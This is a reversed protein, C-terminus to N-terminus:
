EKTPAQKQHFKGHFGGDRGKMKEAFKDQMQGAKERQEPTMIAFLQAKTKEKEIFLQRMTEAQNAALESVKAEDFNGDKGLDKSQQRSEKMKEMLPQIRNKSDELIQKAQAKQEDSLGLENAIREVLAPPLFGRPGFGRRKVERGHAFAFITGLVLIGIVLITLGFKQRKIFLM